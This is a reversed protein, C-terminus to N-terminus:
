EKPILHENIKQVIEPPIQEVADRDFKRIKRRLADLHVIPIPANEVDGITAKPNILVFIPEVPPKQDENLTETLFKQLQDEHDKAERVPQGINDQGFLKLLASGKRQKWKQDYFIEGSVTVPVPLWLHAPGTLLIPVPSEYIYLTYENNLKSLNDAIVEDFRPSRSFRTVYYTSIQSIIFGLVLAGLSILMRTPTPNFNLVLGVALIAIGAVSSIKGIKKNREILKENIIKNM